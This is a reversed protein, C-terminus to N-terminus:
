LYPARQIMLGIVVAFPIHHPFINLLVLSPPVQLISGVLLEARPNHCILHLEISAVVETSRPVSEPDLSHSIKLNRRALPMRNGDEHGFSLYFFM